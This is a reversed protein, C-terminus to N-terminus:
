LVKIIRSPNGGVVSFPPVNKTVVANAGIIAGEGISVGPLITVKDGIWVNKGIFVKGKSTVPRAGPSLKLEELDRVFGHANDTITVNKGTLVGDSIIIENVATIHIYDGLIVNNGIKIIPQGIYGWASIIAHRGISSDSGVSIFEQGIIFDLPYSIVSSKDFSRFGRSFYGTYAVGRSKSLITNIKSFLFNALRGVFFLFWRMDLYDNQM